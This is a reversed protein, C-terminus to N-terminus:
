NHNHTKKANLLGLEFPVNELAMRGSLIKVPNYYQFYEPLM